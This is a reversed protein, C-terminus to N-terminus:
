MNPAWQLSGDLIADAIESAVATDPGDNWDDERVTLIFECDSFVSSKVVMDVMRFCWSYAEFQITGDDILKEVESMIKQKDKM